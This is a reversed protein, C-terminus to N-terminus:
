CIVYQYRVSREIDTRDVGKFGPVEVPMEEVKWVQHFEVQLFISM